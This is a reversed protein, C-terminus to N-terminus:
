LLASFIFGRLYQGATKEQQFIRPFKEKVRYQDFNVHGAADDHHQDASMMEEPLVNVL